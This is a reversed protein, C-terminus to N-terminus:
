YAPSIFVAKVSLYQILIGQVAILFIAATTEIYLFVADGPTTAERTLSCFALLFLNGAEIRFLKVWNAISDRLILVLQVDDFCRWKVLELQINNRKIVRFQNNILAEVGPLTM